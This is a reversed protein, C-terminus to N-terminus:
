EMGAASICDCSQLHEGWVRSCILIHSTDQVHQSVHFKEAMAKSCVAHVPVWSLSLRQVRLSQCHLPRCQPCVVCINCCSQIRQGGVCQVSQLPPTASFQGQVPKPVTCCDLSPGKPWRM